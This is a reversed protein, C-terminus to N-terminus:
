APRGTISNILGPPGNTLIPAPTGTVAPLTAVAKPQALNATQQALLGASTKAQEAQANALAVQAPTLTSTLGSLLSGGAQLAGFAVVPNKGAYQILDGFMGSTDAVSINAGGAVANPNALNNGTIGGAPGVGGNLTSSYYGVDGNILTPNVATTSSEAASQAVPTSVTTSAVNSGYKDLFITNGNVPDVIGFQTFVDPAALAQDATAAAFETTGAVGGAVGEAAGAAGEAAGAAGEAVAGVGAFAGAALAGVGGVVALGMGIMSLTKDGTVKGVVGLVTGVAAVTELVTVISIAEALGIAVMLGM